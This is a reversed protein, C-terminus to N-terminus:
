RVSERITDDEYQVDQGPEKAGGDNNASGTENDQTEALDDAQNAGGGSTDDDEESPDYNM